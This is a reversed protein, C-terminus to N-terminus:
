SPSVPQPRNRRCAADLVHGFADGTREWSLASNHRWAADRLHQYRGPEAILAKTADALAEPTPDTLIGTRGDVVADRLGPIRYCISPTGLRAAETVTLGWGERVACATLITADALIGAKRRESVRGTFKVAGDLDLERTLRELGDREPGEGVVVLSADPISRRLRALARIAHDVRKSAVLRGVIVLRPTLMKPPLRPLAPTSSAMPIVHIPATTGLDRLDDLTSRSITVAETRRYAALYIPEAAYGLAAVPLPAEYWWVDRALQPILLLTRSRAWMPSLWPLTNIEEVVIDWSRRAGFRPAHFRTTLESGRRVISVGDVVEESPAGSPRSTFWSVQDGRAVLRKALEHTLLEAGGARPNRVDRWNLILVQLGSM